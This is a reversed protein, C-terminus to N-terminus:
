IIGFQDLLGGVVGAGGILNQLTSNGFQPQTSSGGYSGQISALYRNLADYPREQNFQFRQVQDSLERQSQTDFAAGATAAANAGALNGQWISPLTSLAQQQRNREADYAGGYISTALDNLNRGHAQSQWDVANQHAGSGTRGAMSFAANAGPLTDERFRRSVADSAMGFTKDLWPNANLYDGHLTDAIFRNGISNSADAMTSGRQYMANLANTSMQGMPAITSGGYAQPGGTGYLNQAQGFIQQLYPVQSSWPAQTTTYTNDAM